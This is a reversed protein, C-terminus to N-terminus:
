ARFRELAASKAAASSGLRDNFSPDKFAKM